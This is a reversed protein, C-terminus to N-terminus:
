NKRTPALAALQTTLFESTSQLQTILTDLATFQALYRAEILSIRRDLAERDDAVREIQSQAGRTLAELRGDPDLYSDALADVQTALGGSGGFLNRVSTFDSGLATNLRDSDIKLSGDLQTTLGIQWLQEYSGAGSVTGGLIGRLQRSADRLAAEGTLVSAQQSSADYRTLEATKAVLTNYATVFKQVADAASANDRGVTLTANSGPASKILNLTVGDIVGSVTNVASYSDYGDVRVHADSAAQIEGFSALTTSVSVANALGTQRASLVLHTGTADTILTANVGTNNSAGNIADRLQAVTDNGATLSVTFSQGNVTLTVDGAGLTSDASAYGATALKNARALSVVEVTYSGAVAGTATATFLSSDSSQATLKGLAGTASTLETAASQLSALAARYSGLASLRVEARSEVTALRKDAPAREAAILQSVLNNVDLGSGLGAVSIGPM